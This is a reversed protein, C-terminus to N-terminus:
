DTSSRSFKKEVKPDININFKSEGYSFKWDTMDQDRLKVIADKGEAESVGRGELQKQIKFLFKKKADDPSAFLSSLTFPKEMM